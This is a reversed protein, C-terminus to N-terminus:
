LLNLGSVAEEAVKAHQKVVVEKDAIESKAESLKENLRKVENELHQVRAERLKLQDELGILHTHSEISIQVYKTNRSNNDQYGQM